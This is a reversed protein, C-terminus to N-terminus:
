ISHAYVTDYFSYYYFHREHKHLRWTLSDKLYYYNILTEGGYYYYADIFLFTAIHASTDLRFIGAKPYRNLSNFFKITDNSLITVETTFVVDFTSDIPDGYYNGVIHKSGMMDYKRAMKQLIASTDTKPQVNNNRVNKKSCACLSIFM